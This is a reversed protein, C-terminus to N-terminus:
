LTKGFRDILGRGVCGKGSDWLSETEFGLTAGGASGQTVTALPGWGWRPQPWVPPPRRGLWLGTPTPTTTKPQGLTPAPRWGQAKPWLGKPIASVTAHSIQVIRILHLALCRPGFVRPWNFERKSM